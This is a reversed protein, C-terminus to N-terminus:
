YERKSPKIQAKVWLLPLFLFPLSAQAYMWLKYKEVTSPGLEARLAPGVHPDFWDDGLLRFALWGICIIAMLIFRKPYTLKRNMVILYVLTSGVLVATIVGWTNWDWPYTLKDAVEAYAPRSSLWLLVGSVLAIFKWYFGRKTFIRVLSM